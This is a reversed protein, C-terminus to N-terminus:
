YLNWVGNEFTLGKLLIEMETSPTLHLRKVASEAPGRLATPLADTELALPGPNSVWDPWM